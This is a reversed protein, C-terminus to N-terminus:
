DGMSLYRIVTPGLTMIFLAPLMLSAMVASMQVPLKNAKEVAKMERTDRMEVAYANMAESISTGYEMSQAILQAFASIEEVGTRLAMARLAGPRDRGALVEAHCLLIEESIAPSVDALARGVRLMATDFGLGAGVAVQLLDLANPFGDEVLQRRATVRRNLWITPGYFGIAVGFAIIQTIRLQSLGAIAEALPDPLVQFTRMALCVLALAPVLAALCLRLVYFNRVANVGAFGARELQARIQSRESQNEPILAKLVGVPIQDPTKLLSRGGRGHLYARASAEMRLATPDAAGILMYIGAFVLLVGLFIAALIALKPDLGIAALSPIPINM